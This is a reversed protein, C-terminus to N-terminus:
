KTIYGNESLNIQVNLFPLWKEEPKERTFKIYESQKDLLEFYLLPGLDIVPAEVKSTLAIALSPALRQGITLGRIQAYYKGSWRFISCSLCKKLLTM